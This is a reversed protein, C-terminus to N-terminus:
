LLRALVYVWKSSKICQPIVGQPNVSLKNIFKKITIYPNHPTKETNDFKPSLYAISTTFSLQTCPKSDANEDELPTTPTALKELMEALKKLLPRFLKLM